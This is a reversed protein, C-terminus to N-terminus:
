DFISLVFLFLEFHSAWVNGFFTIAFYYYKHSCNKPPKTHKHGIEGLKGIFVDDFLLCMFRIFVYACLHGVM